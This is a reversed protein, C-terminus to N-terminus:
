RVDFHKRDIGVFGAEKSARQAQGRPNQKPVVRIMGEPELSREVFVRPPHQVLTFGVVITAVEFVSGLHLVEDVFTMPTSLAVQGEEGFHPVCAEGEQGFEYSIQGM